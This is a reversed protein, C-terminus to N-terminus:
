RGSIGYKGNYVALNPLFGYDILLARNDKENNSGGDKNKGSKVMKPM